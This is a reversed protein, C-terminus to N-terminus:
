CKTDDECINTFAYFIIKLTKRLVLPVGASFLLLFHLRFELFSMFTNWMCYKIVNQLSSM